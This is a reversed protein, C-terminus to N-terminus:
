KPDESKKENEGESDYMCEVLMMHVPKVLDALGSKRVLSGVENFSIEYKGTGVIGGYIVAAVDKIGMHGKRAKLFMAPIGIGAATEIECIAEFSPTLVYKKGCLEIEIQGRQYNAM